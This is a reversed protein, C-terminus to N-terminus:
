HQENKNVALREQLIEAAEYLNTSDFIINNNYNDNIDIREEDNKYIDAEEDIYDVGAIWFSDYFNIGSKSEIKLGDSMDKKNSKSPCYCYYEIYNPYGNSNTTQHNSRNM